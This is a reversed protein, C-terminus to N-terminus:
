AHQLTALLMISLAARSHSDEVDLGSMSRRQFPVFGAMVAVYGEAAVSGTVWVASSNLFFILTTKMEHEEV